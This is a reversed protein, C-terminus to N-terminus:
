GQQGETPDLQIWNLELRIECSTAQNAKNLGALPGAILESLRM